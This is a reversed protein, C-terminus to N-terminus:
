SSEQAEILAFEIMRELVEPEQAGAIAHRGAFVLCPVGNIGHRHARLNEAHVEAVGAESELLSRAALPDLDVAAVLGALTATDGIDRGESFHARFLIGVMEQGRGYSAAWHLLRHVDVTNPTRRIRDFRYTIGERRGIETITVFLRRAREESGFKRLLYEGQAIGSRPMDANLLFPRWILECGLDPRRELARILRAYGLYCWPCVLDHVVEILLRTSRSVLVNM